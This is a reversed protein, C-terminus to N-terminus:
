KFKALIIEDEMKWISLSLQSLATEMIKARQDHDIEVALKKAANTIITTNVNEM